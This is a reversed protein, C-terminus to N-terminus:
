VPLEDQQWEAAGVKPEEALAGAIALGLGASSGTVLATKASLNFLDQVV